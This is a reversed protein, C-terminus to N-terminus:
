KGDLVIFSQEFHVEGAKKVNPSEHVVRVNKGQDIVRGMEEPSRKNIGLLRGSVHMTNVIAQLAAYSHSM